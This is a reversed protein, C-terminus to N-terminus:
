ASVSVVYVVYIRSFMGVSRCQRWVGSAVAGDQGGHMHTSLMAMADRWSHLNGSEPLSM